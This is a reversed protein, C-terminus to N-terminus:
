RIEPDATGSIPFMLDFKPEKSICSGVVAVKAPICIFVHVFSLEIETIFVISLIM